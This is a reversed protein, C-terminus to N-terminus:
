HRGFLYRMIEAFAPRTITIGVLVGVTTTIAFGMLTTIGSFFIPIMSAVLAGASAFVIFFARKIKRLIGKVEEEQEGEGRLIEDTIIIQDDVGTGTSTIVGVMSPVDMQWGVLAAFGFIMLIESFVTLAIPAAIKIHKYRLAVYISVAIMSLLVALLFTYFATLGYSPPIVQESAIYVAAPLAGSELIIRLEEIRKLAEERNKAWGHIVLTEPAKSIDKVNTVGETLRIVARLNTAQWLWPVDEVKPVIKPKLGMRNLEPALDNLEPPLIVTRGAFPRLVDTSFNEDVVFWIVGANLLFENIDLVNEDRISPRLPLKQWKEYMSRPILLVDGVPRDIYVYTYACNAEQGPFPAPTCKGRVGEYFRKKGEESILFPLEWYVGGWQSPLLRYDPKVSVIDKGTLIVNGDVTIELKGQRLITNKLEQLRAPDTEAVEIIVHQTGWPRVVVNRLGAWNLRKELIHVADVIEASSLPKDFALTLVTGGRFDIGLEIGKWAIISASLILALILIRIRWSKLLPHM